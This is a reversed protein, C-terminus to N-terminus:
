HAQLAQLWLNDIQSLKFEDLDELHEWYRGSPVM